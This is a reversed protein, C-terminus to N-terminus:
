TPGVILTFYKVPASAAVPHKHVEQSASSHGPNSSIPRCIRITALNASTISISSVKTASAQLWGFQKTSGKVHLQDSERRLRRALDFTM